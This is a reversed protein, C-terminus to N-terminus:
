SIKALLNAWESSYYSIAGDYIQQATAKQTIGEGRLMLQIPDHYEVGNLKTTSINVGMTYYDSYRYKDAMTRIINVSSSNYLDYCSKAFKSMKSLDNSSLQYDFPKVGGTTSTFYCMQEDTHLYSLFEKIVASKEANSQKKVFISMSDFVPLVYGNETQDSNMLPLMMYRYDRKGYAYDTRNASALANFKPRSENEWWTGEYLFASPNNGYANGYLYSQHVDDNTTQNASDAHYYLPNDMYNEMFKLAELRGQMKFTNYGTAKTFTLNEKTVPNSYNGTFSFSNKYNEIGDYEAFIASYLPTVYYSLLGSWLFAKMGNTQTIKNLMLEYETINAPHGDDFTNAVGDRGVSLEDSSSNIPKGNKGILFGNELFIDHDYVFGMFGDQFPITYYKGESKHVTDVYDKDRDKVKEYVTKNGDPKSNYVDTLDELWGLSIAEKYDPSNLFIDYELTGSKFGAEIAYWEDESPIVKIQYKDQTANFKQAAYNAWDTGYGGNFVSFLINQKGGGDGDGSDAGGCAGLFTSLSLVFILLITLFRRKM